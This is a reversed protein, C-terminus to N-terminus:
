APTEGTRVQARLRDVWGSAAKWAKGAAQRRAGAGSGAVPYSGLFKVTHKAALNRLVDAVLEDDIHGECDIFFCYSGLGRKTPRSELKTLNVARAAFEQLIGLLSGPRDQSQFVVVTTKDHGTRPPIGRGLVVFRTQNEPHDEVDSALVVLGYLEAALATSIAARGAARSRAVGQAAEATSNAAMVEVGPLKRALWERCQATAHPHSTVTKVAALDTGPRACLNLDIGLVVERQILVESEFALTDLTVNVSGEISNEIPVIGIDADGREVAAIVEPVSRISVLEGSALDPQSLLAEETFTGPPGLFAVSMRHPQAPAPM